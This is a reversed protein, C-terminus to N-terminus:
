AFDRCLREISQLAADDRWSFDNKRMTRRRASTTEKLYSCHGVVIREVKV